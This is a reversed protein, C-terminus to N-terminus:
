YQLFGKQKLYREVGHAAKCGCAAAIVAQNYLLDTVDGAAFVGPINTCPSCEDIIIYGKDDTKLWPRFIESNPYRGIALFLGDIDISCQEEDIKGKNRVVYMGKLKEKGYLGVIEHKFLITINRQQSIQDQIKSSVDLFAEKVILYVNKAISSLYIANECAMDGGGVVAVVKNHYCSGKSTECNIFGKDFYENEDEIGLRKFSTGTAIIVTDATIVINSDIVIRYPEKEFDVKTVVGARIDTGFRKAQERLDQMLKSGTVGQPYGPFNDVMAVMSLQGGPLVGEYLVAKVNARGVYIAATCGAPGSGIILCQVHESNM